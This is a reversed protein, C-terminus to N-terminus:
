YYNCTISNHTCTDERTQMIGREEQSEAIKSCHSAMEKIMAMKLGHELTGPLPSINLNTVQTVLILTPHGIDYSVWTGQVQSLLLLYLLNWQIHFVIM